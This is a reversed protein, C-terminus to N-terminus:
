GILTITFTVCTLFKVKMITMSSDVAKCIQVYYNMYKEEHYNYSDHKEFTDTFCYKQPYWWNYEPSLSM